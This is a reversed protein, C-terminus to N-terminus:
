QGRLSDLYGKAERQLRTAAAEMTRYRRCKHDAHNDCYISFTYGVEGGSRLGSGVDEGRAGDEDNGSNDGSQCEEQVGGLENQVTHKDLNALIELFATHYKLVAAGVRQQFIAQEEARQPPNEIVRRAERLHDLLYARAELTLHRNRHPPDKRRENDAFILDALLFDESKFIAFLHNLEAPTLGSPGPSSSSQAM